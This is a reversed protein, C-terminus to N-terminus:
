CKRYWIGFLLQIKYRIGAQLFSWRFPVHLFCHWFSMSPQFKGSLENIDKWLTVMAEQQKLNLELVNLLCSEVDHSRDMDLFGSQGVKINWAVVMIYIRSIWCPVWFLPNPLHNEKEIPHDKTEMIIKQHTTQKPAIIKNSSLTMNQWWLGDRYNYRLSRLM